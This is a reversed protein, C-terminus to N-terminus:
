LVQRLLYLFFCKLHTAATNCSTEKNPHYVISTYPIISFIHKSEFPQQNHSMVPLIHFISPLKPRIQSYFSPFWTRGLFWLSQKCANDFPFTRQSRVVRALVTLVFEAHIQPFGPFSSVNFILSDGTTQKEYVLQLISRCSRRVTKRAPNGSETGGKGYTKRHGNGRIMPTLPASSRLRNWPNEGLFGM